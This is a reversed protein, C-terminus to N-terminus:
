EAREGIGRDFGVGGGFGGGGILADFPSSRRVAPTKDGPPLNTRSQRSQVQPQPRGAPDRSAAPLSKVRRFARTRLSFSSSDAHIKATGNGKLPNQFFFQAIQFKAGLPLAKVEACHGVAQDTAPQVM